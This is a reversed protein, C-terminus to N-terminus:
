VVGSKLLDIYSENDWDVDCKQYLNNDLYLLIAKNDEIKDLIIPTSVLITDIFVIDKKVQSYSNVGICVFIAMLGWLYKIIASRQYEEM